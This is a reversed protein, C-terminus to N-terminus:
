TGAGKAVQRKAAQRQFDRLKQSIVMAATLWAEAPDTTHHDNLPTGDLMLMGNDYATVSLTLVLGADRPSPHVNAERRLREHSAPM